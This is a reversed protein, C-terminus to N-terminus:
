YLNFLICRSSWSKPKQKDVYLKNLFRICKVLKFLNLCVVPGEFAISQIFYQSVWFFLWYATCCFIKVTIQYRFILNAADSIWPLNDERLLFQHIFQQAKRKETIDPTPHGPPPRLLLGGFVSAANFFSFFFFLCLCVTLAQWCCPILPSEVLGLWDFYSFAQSWFPM